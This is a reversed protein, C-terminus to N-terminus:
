NFITGKQNIKSVYINYPINLNSYNRHMIKQVKEANKKGESFIFISPGSGSIGGGLINNSTNKCENILTNYNPILQSRSPEAIFDKLSKKILNYNETYFGSILGGLNGCQKVVTHIDIKKKLIERLKSTKFELLPNLITIWLNKPVNIKIIDLTKYDRILTIGGILAPVINDSHNQSKKLSIKEGEMAITLLDKKKFPSSLLLNAGYCAGVASAASSGLGSGPNINKYIEVEFGINKNKYKKIFAKLTVGVINKNPNIPINQINHIKKIYIESKKILKIKIIDQPQELALGLVDFGCSINAVTAPTTIKIEKKKM